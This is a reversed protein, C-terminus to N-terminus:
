FYICPLPSLPSLIFMSHISVPNVVLAPVYPVTLPTSPAPPLSNKYQNNEDQIINHSALVSLLTDNLKACMMPTFLIVVGLSHLKKRVSSNAAM